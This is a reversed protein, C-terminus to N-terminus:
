DVLADLHHHVAGHAEYLAAVAAKEADLWAAVEADSTSATVYLTRVSDHAAEGNPRLTVAIAGHGIDRKAIIKVETSM